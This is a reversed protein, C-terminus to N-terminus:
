KIIEWFIAKARHYNLNRCIDILRGGSKQYEGFEFGVFGAIGMVGATFLMFESSQKLEIFQDM